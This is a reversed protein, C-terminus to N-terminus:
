QPKVHDPATAKVRSLAPFKDEHEFFHVWCQDTWSNSILDISYLIVSKKGCGRRDCTPASKEDLRTTASNPIRHLDSCVVTSKDRDLYHTAPKKCIACPKENTAEEEEEKAWKFMLPWEGILVTQLEGFNERSTAM